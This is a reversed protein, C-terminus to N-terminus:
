ETAKFGSLRVAEQWRRSDKRMLASFEDPTSPLAAFDMVRFKEIVDDQRLARTMELNLKQVIADPTGAPALLAAWAYIELDPYGLETFTPVAPLLPSRKESTVALVKVKGADLHPKVALLPLFAAQVHGGILNTM